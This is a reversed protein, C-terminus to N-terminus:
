KRARRITMLNSKGLQYNYGYSFPLPGSSKEDMAKKLDPQMRNAFLPIPRSYYGHLRVEWGEKFYGLPIGSDDQVIFDSGALLAGRIGTFKINANHMLYSASKIVTAFPAQKRLFPIFNPNSRQLSYDIVNLMFYRVTQVPGREKRFSIEVGPIWSKPPNEWRIADDAPSGPVVDGNKDIAIRRAGTIEYDHLALFFLLMTGISNFRKNRLTEAMGETRFFNMRLITGLSQKVSNLGGRLERETLHTGEPIPAPSELGFLIYNEADPFFALAHPIDPGSFPYLVTNFRESPAYQKWWQSMKEMNPRQFRNFGEEIQRRYQAYYATRTFELLPSEDRVGRGALFRAMDNLEPNARVQAMGNEGKSSCFLTWAIVCAIVAAITRRHSTYSM